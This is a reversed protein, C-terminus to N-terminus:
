ISVYTAPSAKRDIHPDSLSAGVLPLQYYPAVLKEAPTPESPRSDIWSQNTGAITDSIVTSRFRM